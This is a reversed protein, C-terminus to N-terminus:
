FKAYANVKNALSDPRNITPNVDWLLQHQAARCRGYADDVAHLWDRMSRAGAVDYGTHNANGDDSAGSRFHWRRRKRNRCIVCEGLFIGLDFIANLGLFEGEWPQSLRYFADHLKKDRLNDSLCGSNLPCWRSM